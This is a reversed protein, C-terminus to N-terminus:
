LQLFRLPRDMTNERSMHNRSKLFPLCYGLQEGAVSLALRRGGKTKMIDQLVKRQSYGTILASDELLKAIKRRDIRGSTSRLLKQLTKDVVQSKNPNTLLRNLAFPYMVQLVNFKPDL